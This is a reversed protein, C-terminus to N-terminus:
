APGTPTGSAPNGPGGRAFQRALDGDFHVTQTPFAFSLGRADVARMIATNIAQRTKMAEHFDPSLCNYVMWIDLSSANFDRFYVIVSDPKVNSQGRVIGRIEEVVADMQEPPTDYTLGVTMEMRRGDFRSLNTISESAVTKNPIVMLSRDILRIRTSRLGIDEIFGVNGGIKVVEGTKFPQDVAVVVSGFINAITDQAALAFALGGIGLGALAAGVDAGLSQAVLLVGFVTFITLLSKKIWPMFAAISSGRAKAIDTAHDLTAGVARLFLWFFALSFAVTSAYAVIRDSQESLKLVRLAAFIGVLLVFTGAPIELAPLLRDDLNTGTRKTLRRLTRFVVQTLVRRMLLGLAFLVGAIVYHTVTNGSAEIDLAELIVDVLYEIFHPAPPVNDTAVVAAATTADPNAAAAEQAQVVPTFTLLLFLFAHASRKM